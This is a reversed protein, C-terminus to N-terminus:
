LDRREEDHTTRSRQDNMVFPLVLSLAGAIVSIWDITAYDRGGLAIRIEASGRVCRPM